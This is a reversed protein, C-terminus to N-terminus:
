RGQLASGKVGTTGIVIAIAEIRADVIVGGVMLKKLSRNDAAALVRQLGLNDTLETPQGKSAAIAPRVREIISAVGDNGTRTVAAKRAVAEIQPRLVAVRVGVNTIAPCHCRAIVQGHTETGCVQAATQHAM